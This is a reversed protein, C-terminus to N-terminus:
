AAAFDGAQWAQDTPDLRSDASRRFVPCSFPPPLTSSRLTPCSRLDLTNQSPWAGAGTKGLCAHPKVLEMDVRAGQGHEHARIVSRREGTVYHEGPLETM